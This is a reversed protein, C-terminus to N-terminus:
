DKIRIRPDLEACKKWVGDVKKAVVVDYKWECYGNPQTNCTVTSPIVPKATFYANDGAAEIKLTGGGFPELGPPVSPSTSSGRITWRYDGNTGSPDDPDRGPLVWAVRQYVTMSVVPLPAEIRGLASDNVNCIRRAMPVVRLTGFDNDLVDANGAGPDISLTPTQATLLSGMGAALALVWVTVGLTRRLSTRSEPVNM